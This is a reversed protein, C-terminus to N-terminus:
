SLVVGAGVAELARREVRRGRHLAQRAACVAGSAGSGGVCLANSTGRTAVQPPVARAARDAVREGGLEDTAALAELARGGAGGAVTHGGSVAQSTSCRICKM